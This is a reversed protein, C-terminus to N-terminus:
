LAEAILAVETAFSQPLSTLLELRGEMAHNEGDSALLYIATFGLNGASGRIAHIVDRAASADQAQLAKELRTIDDRLTSIFLNTLELFDETDLGLQEALYEFDPM